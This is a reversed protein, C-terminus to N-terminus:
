KPSLDIPPIDNPRIQVKTIVEPLVITSLQDSRDQKSQILRLSLHLTYEGSQKVQFAQSISFPNGIQAYLLGPVRFYRGRWRIRQMEDFWDKIQKQTWSGFQKGTATKEVPKGQSDFLEIQLLSALPLKLCDSVDNATTNVVNICCVPPWEKGQPRHEFSALEIACYLGNTKAGKPWSDIMSQMDHDVHFGKKNTAVSESATTNAAGATANTVPQQDAVVDTVLVGSLVTISLSLIITRM